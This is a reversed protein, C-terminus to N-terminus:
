FALFGMGLARIIYKAESNHCAVLLGKIVEVKKAQVQARWPRGGM